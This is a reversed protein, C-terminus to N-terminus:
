NFYVVFPSPTLVETATTTLSDQNDLPTDHTASSVVSLAVLGFALWSAKRAYLRNRSM